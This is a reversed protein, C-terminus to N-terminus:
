GPREGYYVVSKREGSDERFWKFLQLVYMLLIGMAAIDEGTYLISYFKVSERTAKKSQPRYKRCNALLLQELRITSVFSQIYIYNIFHKCLLGSHIWRRFM